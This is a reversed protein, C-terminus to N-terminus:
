DLYDATIPQTSAQASGSGLGAVRLPPKRFMNGFANETKESTAVILRRDGHRFQVLHDAGGQLRDTV